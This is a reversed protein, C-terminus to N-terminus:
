PYTASRGNPDPRAVHDNAGNGAPRKKTPPGSRGGSQHPGDGLAAPLSAQRRPRSIATIGTTRRIVRELATADAGDLHSAVVGFLKRAQPEDLQDLQPLFFAYFAEYLVRSPTADPEVMRRATYRAADIFLAPGLELFQRVPLLGAVLEGSGSILSRVVHDPAPPVEIFAFRRMLAYSMRHLTQKDFENMTAIIRWHRPVSIPDTGPPIPAGAPVIAIPEPHGARKYPLTVPQNALVTFLPGFARDFDARNLEDIVLWRANGMAELFVGPHFVLGEPSDVYEGVTERSSWEPTATVALYGTCHIADRALDAVAYALSTKGTGPAGTLMIHRGADLASVVAALVARPFILGRGAARAELNDTTFGAM